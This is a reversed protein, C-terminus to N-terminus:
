RYKAYTKKEGAAFVSVIHLRIENGCTTTQSSKM